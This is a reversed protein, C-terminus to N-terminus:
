AGEDSPIAGAVAGMRMLGALGEALDFGATESVADEAAAGLPRGAELALLFRAGGPPLPHVRVELHPRVVLADEGRDLDVPGAEGDGANMAWITFAPTTFRLVRASPHLTLRLRWLREPDLAALGGMDLPEADAAHYAHTRAAELRAVDALYPLDAAPAFGSLFSPFADGYIMLLRSRPPHSAVFSKAAGVFFEEGVIRETAPFRARLAGILSAVVNNRYVDFRKGPRAANCSTLGAPPPRMPDFLADVFASRIGHEM